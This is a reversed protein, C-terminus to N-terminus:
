AATKDYNYVLSVGELTRGQMHNAGATQGHFLRAFQMATWHEGNPKLQVILRIEGYLDDGAENKMIPYSSFRPQVIWNHPDPLDDLEQETPHLKIHQSGFSHIHKAVLQEAALGLSRWASALVNKPEHQLDLECATGKNIAWYWAPHSHWTVPLNQLKAQLDMDSSSAPTNPKTPKTPKTLNILNSQDGIFRNLVKRINQNKQAAPKENEKGDFAAILEEPSLIPANWVHSAALLDFYTKFSEPNRELLIAGEGAVWARCQNLWAQEQTEGHACALTQWPFHTKLEPWMEVYTQHLLFCSTLVSTFSQFEVLRLDWGKEEDVVIAYDISLVDANEGNLNSNNAAQLFPQLQALLDCSRERLKSQLSTSALMPLSSFPAREKLLHATPLRAAWPQFVDMKKQLLQEHLAFSLSHLPEM